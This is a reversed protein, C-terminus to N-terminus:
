KVWRVKRFAFTFAIAVGILVVVLAIIKISNTDPNNVGSLENLYQESREYVMQDNLLVGEATVAEYMIKEKESVMSENLFQTENIISLLKLNKIYFYVNKNIQKDVNRVIFKITHKGDKDIVIRNDNYFTSNFLLEKKGDLEYYIDGLYKNDKGLGVKSAFSLIDGKSAKFEFTIYAEEKELKELSNFSWVGNSYDMIDLINSSGVLNSETINSYKYWTYEGGVSICNECITYANINNAEEIDYYYPELVIEIDTDKEGYVDINKVLWGNAKKLKTGFVDEYSKIDFASNSKLTFTKTGYIFEEGDVKFSHYKDYNEKDSYEPLFILVVENKYSGYYNVYDEGVRLKADNSLFMGEKLDDVRYISLASVNITIVCFIIVLFVLKSLMKM